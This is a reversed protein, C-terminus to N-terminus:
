GAVGAAPSASGPRENAGHNGGSRVHTVSVFEERLAFLTVPALGAALAEACLAAGLAEQVQAPEIRGLSPSPDYITRFTPESTLVTKRM